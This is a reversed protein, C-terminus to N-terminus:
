QKQEALFLVTIYESSCLREKAKFEDMGRKARGITMAIVANSMPM